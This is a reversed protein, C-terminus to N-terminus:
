SMHKKLTQQNGTVKAASEIGEPASLKVTRGQNVNFLYVTDIAEKRKWVSHNCSGFSYYCDANFNKHTLRM